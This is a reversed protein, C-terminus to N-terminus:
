FRWGFRVAANYIGDDNMYFNPPLEDLNELAWYHYKRVADYHFDCPVDENRRIAVALETAFNEKTVHDTVVQDYSM